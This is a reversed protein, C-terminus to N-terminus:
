RRTTQCRSQPTIAADPRAPAGPQPAGTKRPTGRGPTRPRVPPRRSTPPEHGLLEASDAGNHMQGLRRLCRRPTPVLLARLGIRRVGPMHALQQYDAPQRLRPDSGVVDKVKPPPHPQPVGERVLRQVLRPARIGATPRPALHQHTLETDILQGRDRDEGLEAVRSSEGGGPVRDPIGPQFM